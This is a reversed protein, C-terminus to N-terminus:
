LSFLKLGTEQDFFKELRRTKIFFIEGTGSITAEVLHGAIPQMKKDSFTAHAHIILQNNFVGVNGIISTMELPQNFSLSSYKKAKVDYHALEAKDVAGIGFFFGGQIKQKKFFDSLTAIIKEGRELRILCQGGLNKFKM